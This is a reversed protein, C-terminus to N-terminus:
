KKAMSFFSWSCKGFFVMSDKHIRRKLPPEPLNCNVTERKLPVCKVNCLQPTLLTAQHTHKRYSDRQATRSGNRRRQFSGKHFGVLVGNGNGSSGSARVYAWAALDFFIHTKMSKVLGGHCRLCFLGQMKLLKSNM